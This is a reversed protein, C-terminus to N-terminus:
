TNRSHTHLFVTFGVVCAVRRVSMILQKPLNIILAAGMHVSRSGLAASHLDDYAPSAQSGPDKNHGTNGLLMNMKGMAAAAGGPLLGPETVFSLHPNSGVLFPHYTTSILFHSRETGLAIRTGLGSM